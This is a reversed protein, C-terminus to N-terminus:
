TQLSVQLASLKSTQFHLGKCVRYFSCKKYSIVLSEFAPL